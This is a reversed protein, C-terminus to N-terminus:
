FDDGADQKISDYDTVIPDSGQIKTPDYKLVQNQNTGTSMIFNKDSVPELDEKVQDYKNMYIIDIFM